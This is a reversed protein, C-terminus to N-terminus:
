DVILFSSSFRSQGTDAQHVEIDLKRVGRGFRFLSPGFMAMSGIQAVSSHGSVRLDVLSSSAATESLWAIFQQACRRSPPDAEWGLINLLLLVPRRVTSAGHSLVPLRDVAPDPWSSKSIQLSDLSPLLTLTRRLTGFSPFTCNMIMLTRTTSFRSIALFSSTHYSFAEVSGRFDMSTLNPLHGAFELLFPRRHFTPLAARPRDTFLVVSRVSLLHIRMKESHLVRSVLLDYREPTDIYLKQFLQHRSAPLWASCVLSCDLLTRYRERQAYWAGDWVVPIWAIIEDTLELPFTSMDVSLYAM